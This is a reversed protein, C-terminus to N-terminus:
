EVVPRWGGLVFAPDSYDRITQADAPTTLQKSSRTGSRRTSRGGRRIRATSNGFICTRRHRGRDAGMGGRSHGETQLRILVAEAYPYNLGHNMPLRALVAAVLRAARRAQDLRRAAPAPAARRNQTWPLPRAIAIFTSNVFVNGHNADTNRIWMFPGVSQLSATISSRRGWEWSRTATARRDESDTLYVSGRLNLADGSGKINM